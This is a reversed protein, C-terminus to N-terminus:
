HHRGRSCPSAHRSLHLPRAHHLQAQINQLDIRHYMFHGVDVNFQMDTSPLEYLNFAEAHEAVDETTHTREDESSATAPPELNFNFLQDFDIYNATLALMNDRKRISPDDGLYYNMNVDFETRGIKGHFQEVMLHDNEYHVRGAFKEFRMPHAHMKADLRDLDLDISQLNSDRFHMSSNAHLVLHDVEEHRYDEPVHNEGQYAFLDELRLLDSTLTIDLDVDGNLEPQMWFGYDHVLGNFHFDSQDIHGTFDKIRLDEDDILIDAHFDHFEHPYHKLQAHLNDIFFEGAPLYESETFDRAIADFSFGVSLDTIREDVGTSDKASFRTLEAIDVVDAAIELHAKVPADTHHVIAPLDTLFGTISVDSNGMHMELQNLRAEKGEMVVHVDLSELSAPLDASELTLSDVVLEAFYAQNLDNLAHEPHNLDIIDHFRMKMDVSGTAGQYDNLNLFGVLYDLNFDADLEVDIEPEEFNKVWVTGVFRGTELNANIDTLSFEMTSLNRKEGTTFHGTFGLEDMRKHKETNELFAESAGFNADVFPIQGHATPGQVVANFYINGANDYRELVPILDEPAFAIFMDFSPKAGKVSLDCTLDNILDVTGEFEFAGHEMNIASPKITVFQTAEEISIDTHIDFHKHRVYTTDGDNIINLLLRTDIHTTTIGSASQFAGKAEYVFAEVDVKTTEDYKYIDLNRLEIQKLQM